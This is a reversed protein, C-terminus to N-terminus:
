RYLSKVSGWTSPETATPGMACPPLDGSEWVPEGPPDPPTASGIFGSHLTHYEDIANNPDLVIINGLDSPIFDIRGPGYVYLKLWGVGIGSSGPDPSTAYQPTTWTHACSMTGGLDTGGIIFDSCSTFGTFYPVPYSLGYEVATIVTYVYVVVIADIFGLTHFENNIMTCSTYLPTCQRKNNRAQVDIAFNVNPNMGQAYVTAGIGLLMASVLSIALLKKM